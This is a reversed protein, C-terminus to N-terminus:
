ELPTLSEISDDVQNSVSETIAIMPTTAGQRDDRILCDSIRSRSVRILEMALECDLITLGTVHLRDCDVLSLGAFGSKVHAIHLNALTSDRCNKFVLRNKADLSNGYDYRPNRDFNNPGIVLHSCGEALLNHEFGMWFTNGTVTVGRCAELWINHDVDSLVNGTITIHGEQRIRGEGNANSSGIIRINASDPGDDNHQITCGTIAVEATGYDSGRCDIFINATPSQEASMNSELDCGTIHINRVNGGRSVIGGQDCYSIHCGLINSQHLDVNDYLIGIGSNEYIHCDSIILNRNNEKLHIGHRLKRLHIQSVTLQMTGTAAIGDANSNGGEIALNRVVPFREHDWIAPAFGKPDASKFHSGRFSFAPGQGQMIIRTAASGRIECYGTRRLDIEVTEAFIFTGAPFIILKSGGDVLSQVLSTCDQSSDAYEDLSSSTAEETFAAPSFWFQLLLILLITIRRM